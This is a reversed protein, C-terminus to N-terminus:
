SLESKRSLEHISCFGGVWDPTPLVVEDGSNVTAQLAHYLLQKAGCGVQIQEPSYNLAHDRKFKRVVAERLAITGPM